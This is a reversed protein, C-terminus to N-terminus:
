SRQLIKHWFQFILKESSKLLLLQPKQSSDITSIKHFCISNQFFIYFYHNEWAGFFSFWRSLQKFLCVWSHNRSISKSTWLIGQLLILPLKPPIGLSVRLSTEIHVVRCKQPVKKLFKQFIKWLFEQFLERSDESRGM